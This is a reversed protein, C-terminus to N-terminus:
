CCNLVITRQNKVELKQPRLKGIQLMFSNRKINKKILNFESANGEMAISSYNKPPVNGGLMAENKRLSLEAVSHLRVINVRKQPQASRSSVCSLM